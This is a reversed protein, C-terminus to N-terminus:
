TELAERELDQARAVEGRLQTWIFHRYQRFREDSRIDESADVDIDVDVITKVTGPRSTLVAM